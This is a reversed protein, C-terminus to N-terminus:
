HVVAVGLERLQTGPTGTAGLQCDVGTFYESYVAVVYRGPPLPEGGDASTGDFNIAIQSGDLAVNRRIVQRVFPATGEEFKTSDPDDRDPLAAFGPALIELRLSSIVGATVVPLRVGFQQPAGRGVDVESAPDRLSTFEPGLCGPAAAAVDGPRSGGATVSPAPAGVGCASVSIAVVAVGRSLTMM